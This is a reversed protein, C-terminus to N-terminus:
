DLRSEYQPDEMHSSPHQRERLYELLSNFGISELIQHKHHVELHNVVDGLRCKFFQDCAVEGLFSNFNPFIM